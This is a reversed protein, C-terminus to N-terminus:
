SQLYELIVYVITYATYDATTTINVNTADVTILVATGYPMPIYSNGTTNNATGYIRTFTTAPTIPINHAVSKTATNPLAGFNILIRYAQRFVPTTSSASSLAPNPFFTQGNVFEQTNYIGTDKLNLILAINNTIQYLRVLLERIGPDINMQYLASVDLVSTTNIFAGTNLNPTNAM